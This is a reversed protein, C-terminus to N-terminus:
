TLERLAATLVDQQAAAEVGSAAAVAPLSMWGDSAVRTGDRYVAAPRLLANHDARLDGDLVLIDARLSPVLLGRDNDLGLARAPNGTVLSILEEASLDWRLRLQRLSETFGGIGPGFADSTVYLEVGRRRLPTLLEWRTTPFPEGEPWCAIHGDTQHLDRLAGEINLDIWVHRDAMADVTPWDLEVTAPAAGLWNCHAVIDIGAAVARTIGETANAHGIVRRGLRHADDIAARLELESYQARRRNSSPDIAGGTVMIKIVDAGGAVATRVARVLEVQDDAIAGFDEGHGGTTTIAAGAALVRPGLALGADILDAVRLALGDRSGVDVVTTIGSQLAALGATLGWAVIGVPDAEAASWAASVPSGLCLHAHADVLGPVVTNGRLDWNAGPGFLTEHEATWPGVEAIRGGNLILAADEIPAAGSGDILVGCRWGIAGPRDARM